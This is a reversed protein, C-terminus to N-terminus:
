YLPRFGAYKVLRNAGQLQLSVWAATVAGFVATQAVSSVVFNSFSTQYRKGDRTICDKGMFENRDNVLSCKDSIDVMGLFGFVKYHDLVTLVGAAPALEFAAINEAVKYIQNERTEAKAEVSVAMVAAFVAFLVFSSKAFNM